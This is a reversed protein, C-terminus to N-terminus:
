QRKTFITIYCCFVFKNKDCKGKNITFYKASWTIFSGTLTWVEVESTAPQNLRLANHINHWHPACQCRSQLIWFGSKVAHRLLWCTSSPAVSASRVNSDFPRLHISHPSFQVKQPSKKLIYLLSSRAVTQHRNNTFRQPLCTNNPISLSHVHAHLM